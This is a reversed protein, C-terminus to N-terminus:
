ASRCIVWGPTPCGLQFAACLYWGRQSNTLAVRVGFIPKYSPHTKPPSGNGMEIKMDKRPKPRWFVDNKKGDDFCGCGGAM